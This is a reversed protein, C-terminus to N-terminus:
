IYSEAYNVYGRLGLSLRHLWGKRGFKVWSLCKWRYRLNVKGIWVEAGSDDRYTVNRKPPTHATIRSAERIPNSM